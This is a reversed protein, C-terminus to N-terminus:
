RAWLLEGFPLLFSLGFLLCFRRVLYTYAMIYGHAKPNLVHLPASCCDYYHLINSGFKLM